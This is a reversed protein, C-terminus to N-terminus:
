FSWYCFNLYFLKYPPGSLEFCKLLKNDFTHFYKRWKITNQKNAHKITNLWTKCCFYHMSKQLLSRFCLNLFNLMLIINILLEWLILNFDHLIMTFHQTIYLVLFWFLVDPNIYMNLRSIQVSAEHFHSNTVECRDELACQFEARCMECSLFVIVWECRKRWWSTDRCLTALSFTSHLHNKTCSHM